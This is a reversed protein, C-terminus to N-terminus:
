YVNKLSLQGPPKDLGVPGGVGIGNNRRLKRQSEQELVSYVM